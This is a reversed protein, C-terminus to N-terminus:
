FYTEPLRGEARQRFYADTLGALRSNSQPRLKDLNPLNDPYGFCDLYLARIDPDDPHSQYLRRIRLYRQRIIKPEDQDLGLGRVLRRGEPTRWAITGDEDIRVHEALPIACPDLLVRDKKVSNCRNCAYVLYEYDCIFAINDPNSKSHVHDVGFAAHGSPYWRERELCYVCRFHFDDRLWPKFTTFDTYGAPGHKRVHSHNPYVFPM